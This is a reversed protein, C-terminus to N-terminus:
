NGVYGLAEFWKRQEEDVTIAAEEGGTTLRKLGGLWTRGLAALRAAEDRNSAALDHQEGPDALADYLEVKDPKVIAKWTGDAVSVHEEGKNNRRWSFIPRDAPTQAPDWSPVLSRGQVDPNPTLGCLDLITPLVDLGSVNGAIRAGAPIRGPLRLILPVHLLESHLSQGHEFDGHERFEEGHDATIVVLTRDLVGRRRLDEMLAGINEDNGRIDGDYLSRVHALEAETRANEFAGPGDFGGGIPGHYGTSFITDWPAPPEYPAHPDMAHVYLFFPREGWRDLWPFVAHNLYVSNKKTFDKAKGEEVLSADHTIAPPEFFFDYGQQLNSSSGPHSSTSFAATVYGARRLQEALTVVAESAALGHDTVGHMPPPLSTLLSAVSPRTWCAASTCHEFLAGGQAVADIAPSTPNAAGYASVHDARLTDVLYILVNWPREGAPAGSVLPNSWLVIQGARESAAALVLRVARGRWRSLDATFDTWASEDSLAARFLETSRGGDEIRAAVTVGPRADLLGAGVDLRGAAPITVDWAIESPARHFVVHRIQNGIMEQALGHGRGAYFGERGILRISEVRVQADAGDAPDLRLRSLHLGDYGRLTETRIVYRSAQEGAVIENVLTFKPDLEKTGAWWLRLREGASAALRIEIARLDRFEMDLDPSLIGPADPGSTWAIAGGSVPAEGGTNLTWGEASSEFEFTRDAGGSAQPDASVRAVVLRDDLRLLSPDDRVPKERADFAVRQLPEHAVVPHPVPPQSSGCAIMAGAAAIAAALVAARFPCALIPRPAM